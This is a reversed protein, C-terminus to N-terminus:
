ITNSRQLNQYDANIKEVLEDIAPRMVEDYVNPLIRMYYEQTCCRVFITDFMAETNDIAEVVSKSAVSRLPSSKQHFDTRANQMLHWFECTTELPAKRNILTDIEPPWDATNPRYFKDGLDEWDVMYYYSYDAVSRVFETTVDTACGTLTLVAIVTYILKPM